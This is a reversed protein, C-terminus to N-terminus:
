LPSGNATPNLGCKRISAKRFTGVSSIVNSNFFGFRGPNNFTVGSKRYTTIGTLRDHGSPPTGHSLLSPLTDGICLEHPGVSVPLAWGTGPRQTINQALHVGVTHVPVQSSALDEIGEVSEHVVHKPSVAGELLKMALLHDQQHIIAIEQIM